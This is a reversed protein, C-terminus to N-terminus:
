KKMVIQISKSHNCTWLREFHKNPTHSHIRIQFLQQYECTLDNPIVIKWLFTRWVHIRFEQISTKSFILFKRFLIFSEFHEFNWFKQFTQNKWFNWFTLIKLFNRFTVIKLIKSFYLLKSFNLTDLYGNKLIDKCRFTQFKLTPLTELYSFCVRIVLIVLEPCIIM